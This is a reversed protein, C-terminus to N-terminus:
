SAQLKFHPSNQAKVLAAELRAIHDNRIAENIRLQAIRQEQGTHLRAIRLVMHALREDACAIFNLRQWEPPVMAALRDIRSLSRLRMTNDDRWHAALVVYGLSNLEEAVTQVQATDVDYFAYNIKVVRPQWRKLKVLNQLKVIDQSGWMPGESSILTPQSMTAEDVMTAPVDNLNFPRVAQFTSPVHVRWGATSYQQMQAASTASLFIATPAPSDDAFILPIDDSM